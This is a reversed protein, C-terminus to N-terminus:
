SQYIRYGGDSAWAISYSMDRLLDEAKIIDIGVQEHDCAKLAASIGHRLDHAETANEISSREALTVVDRALSTAVEGYGLDTGKREIVPVGSAANTYLLNM